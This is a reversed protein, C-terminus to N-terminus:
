APSTTSRHWIPSNATRAVSRSASRSKLRRDAPAVSHTSGSTPRSCLRRVAHRIPAQRAARKARQYVVARKDRSFPTGDKEDEFFYQRMEPRIEEFFYRLQAALPYNRLVAHSPQVLDRLGWLAFFGFFATLGSFILRHDPLYYLGAIGAATLLLVITLTLYRAEFPLFLLRM